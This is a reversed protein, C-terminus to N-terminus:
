YRNRKRGTKPNRIMERPLEDGHGRIASQMDPYEDDHDGDDVDVSGSSNKKIERPIPRVVGGEAFRQITKTCTHPVGKVRGNSKVM